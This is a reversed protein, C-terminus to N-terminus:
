RTLGEEPLVSPNPLTHHILIVGVFVASGAIGVAGIYGKVSLEFGGLANSHFKSLSDVAKHIISPCQSSSESGRLVAEIEESICLTGFRLTEEQVVQCRFLVAESTLM